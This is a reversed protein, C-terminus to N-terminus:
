PAASSENITFVGEFTWNPNPPDDAIGDGNSDVEFVVTATHNGLKLSFPEVIHGATFVAVKAGGFFEPVTGIKTGTQVHEVRVDDIEFYFDLIFGQFGSNVCDRAEKPTRFLSPAGIVCGVFTAILIHDQVCQQSADLFTEPAIFGRRDESNFAVFSGEPLGTKTHAGGTFGAELGAIVEGLGVLPEGCDQANSSHSVFVFLLVCLRTFIKM